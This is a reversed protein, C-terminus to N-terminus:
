HLSERRVDPRKGIDFVERLRRALEVKRVPKTLPVVGDGLPGIEQVFQDAYGTMFVVKLKPHKRRAENFTEPGNMKGPLMIDCLILDIGPNTTLESLAARGNKAQHVTYGLECLLKAIGDRVDADDELVLVAEGHDKPVFKGENEQAPMAIKKSRPLYLQVITGSGEESEISVDGGSQRVFGYIMSLGLGSGKGVEKTTFFPDFARKIVEPSMGDGDDSVEIKVYDGPSLELSDRGQDTKLQFNEFGFSIRGGQPLADRANIVLNLIANELQNPDAEAPWLDIPTPFLIEIDEGLSHDFFDSMGAILSQVDIPQPRLAQKRSFALLKKTLDSGQSAAKILSKVSPDSNGLQMQLVEAHSMIVALLNNFDHGVGATLQGVAEMKQAQRLESELKNRITM